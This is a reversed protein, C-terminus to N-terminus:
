ATRRFVGEAQAKRAACRNCRDFPFSPIDQTSAAIVSKMWRKKM